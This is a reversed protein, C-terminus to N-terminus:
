VAAVGPATLLLYISGKLAVRRELNAAVIPFGGEAAEFPVGAQPYPAPTQCNGYSAFGAAVVCLGAAGTTLSPSAVLGVGPTRLSVFTVAGNTPSAVLNVGAAGRVAAACVLLGVLLGALVLDSCVRRRRRQRVRADEVVGAEPASHIM